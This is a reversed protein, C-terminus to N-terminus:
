VVMMSSSYSSTRVLGFAVLGDGQLVSPTVNLTTVMHRLIQPLNPQEHVSLASLLRKSVTDHDINM